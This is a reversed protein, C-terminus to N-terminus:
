LLTLIGVSFLPVLPVLRSPIQRPLAFIMPLARARVAGSTVIPRSFATVAFLHNITPMAGNGDDRLVSSVAAAVCTNGWLQEILVHM